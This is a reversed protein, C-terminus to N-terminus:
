TRQVHPRKANAFRNDHERPKRTDRTDNSSPKLETKGSKKKMDLVIIILVIQLVISVIVATLVLTATDMM